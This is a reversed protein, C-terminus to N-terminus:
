APCWRCFKKSSGSEKIHNRLRVFANYNGLVWLLLLLVVGILIYTGIM